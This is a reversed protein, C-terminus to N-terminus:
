IVRRVAPWPSLVFYGCLEVLWWATLFRGCRDRPRAAAIAMTGLALAGIGGFALNAVNWGANGFAAPLAAEAPITVFAIWSAAILGIFLRFPPHVTRSLAA